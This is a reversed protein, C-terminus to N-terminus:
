RPGRLICASAARTVPTGGNRLFQLLRITATREQAREEMFDDVRRFM